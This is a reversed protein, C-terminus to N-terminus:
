TIDMPLVERLFVTRDVTGSVALSANAAIIHDTEVTGTSRPFEDVIVMDVLGAGFNVAVDSKVVSQLDVGIEHIATGLLGIQDSGSVAFGAYWPAACCVTSSCASADCVTESLLSAHKLLLGEACDAEEFPQTGDVDIATDVCTPHVTTAMQYKAPTSGITLTPSATALDAVLQEVAAMATTESEVTAPAVNVTVTM